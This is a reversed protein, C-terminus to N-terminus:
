DSINENATEEKELPIVIVQVSLHDIRNMFFQVNKNWLGIRTEVNKIGISTSANVEEKTFGVGNDEIIIYLKNDAEKIEINLTCPEISPEIGHVVANEVLPQLLLKPLPLSRMHEPYNINYTFRQGFRLHHLSCYNKLFDLEKGLTTENEHRLVYRLLHTFSYLYDNLLDQEGIQNLTIFSYITNIIFHPQIQSQLAQFQLNQQILKLEYENKIKEQLQHAMSNISFAIDDFEQVDMAKCRADLNGKELTKLTSLIHGVPTRIWKKNFFLLYSIVICLLYCGIIIGFYTGIQRTIYNASFLVHVTLGYRDVIEYDHVWTDHNFHFMDKKLYELLRSEVPANSYILDGHDNTLLVLTPHSQHLRTFLDDLVNTKMNILIINEQEPVRLNKLRRSIYFSETEIKKADESIMITPSFAIKGDQEMAALYWNRDSLPSTTPLYQYYNQANFYIVEQNSLFLLDGFDDRSYATMNLTSGIEVSLQHREVNSLKQLDIKSQLYSHSFPARMINDIDQIYKNMYASILQTNQETQAKITQIQYTGFLGSICLCVLLVPLIFSITFTTYLRYSLSPIKRKNM